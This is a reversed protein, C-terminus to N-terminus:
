YVQYKAHGLEVLEDNLCIGDIWISVLYRGYKGKDDKYTQVIFESFPSLRRRVYDRAQLGISREKGRVEWANIGYLRCPGLDLTAGFGLDVTIRITDADYIPNLHDSLRAKYVFPAPTM